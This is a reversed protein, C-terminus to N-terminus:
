QNVGIPVREIVELGYGGLGTYRTPNNSLLRMKSIGLLALISSGIGVNAEVDKSGHEATLDYKRLTHSLGVNRGEKGRLYVLVGGDTHIRRLSAEFLKRCDCTSSGFTDGVVCEAHVRVLIADDKSLPGKVFAMHRTGDLISEYEIAKFTGISNTVEEERVIKVLIESKLRHQILDEITIMHLKHQEAFKELEPLRSMTGDDNVIECLVGSPFLGALRALEASAETHGARKLVGGERCKLPFIHGPRNFDEAKAEPDALAKITLARDAASIGTTTNHKYDVSVTFATSHKETNEAVMPPLRLQRAREESVSVCIVGSCYRVMFAVAEPTIKESAIILDGENERSEDDLVVVFEGRGIAAIAEDITSFPM